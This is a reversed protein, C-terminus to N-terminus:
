PDKVSLPGYNLIVRAANQEPFDGYLYVAAKPESREDVLEIINTSRQVLHVRQSAELDDQLPDLPALSDKFIADVRISNKRRRPLFLTEFALSLLMTTLVLTIPSLLTPFLVKLDKRSARWVRCFSNRLALTWYSCCQHCGPRSGRM